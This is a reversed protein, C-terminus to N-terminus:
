RIGSRRVTMERLYEIPSTSGAVPSSGATRGPVAGTGRRTLDQRGALNQYGATDHIGALDRSGSGAQFGVLDQLETIDQFGAVDQPGALDALVSVNHQTVGLLLLRGEVQVIILSIGKGLMQRSVVDIPVQRKGGAGGFLGSVGAGGLLTRGARSRAAKSVVWVFLVIVGLAIVVQLIL